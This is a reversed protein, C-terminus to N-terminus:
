VFLLPVYMMIVYGTVSILIATIILRPWLYPIRAKKFIDYSFWLNYLSSLITQYLFVNMSIINVRLLVGLVVDSVALMMFYTGGGYLCLTLIEIFNFRGRGLVLYILFASAILIVFIIPTFHTRLFINADGSLLSSNKWVEYKYDFRSIIYNHLIIYIGTLILIYSVPRQYEKRKGSLFKLSSSGPRVLFEWITHWFGKEYHTISHVTEGLLQSATIREVEAKQGCENCFKGSFKNGCNLCTM